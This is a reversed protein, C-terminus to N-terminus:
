NGIAPSPRWIRRWLYNKVLVGGDDDDCDYDDYDYNTMITMMTMMTM